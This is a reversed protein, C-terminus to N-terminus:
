CVHKYLLDTQDVLIVYTWIETLIPDTLLKCSLMSFMTSDCTQHINFHSLITFSISM